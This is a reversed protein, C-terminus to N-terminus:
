IRYRERFDNDIGKPNQPPGESLSPDKLFFKRNPKVYNLCDELKFIIKKKNTQRTDKSRQNKM